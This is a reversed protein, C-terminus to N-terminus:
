IYESSLSQINLKECLYEVFINDKGNNLIHKL